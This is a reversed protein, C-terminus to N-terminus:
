LEEEDGMLCCVCGFLVRDLVFSLDVYVGVSSDWGFVGFEGWNVVIFFCSFSYVVVYSISIISGMGYVYFFM